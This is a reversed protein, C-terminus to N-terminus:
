LVNIGLAAMIGYERGQRLVRMLPSQEGLFSANAQDTVLLDSEDMLMLIETRDAEQDRAMRGILVQSLLVDIVVWQAPPALTTLDVVISTGKSFFQELDIGRFTRAFPGLAHAVGDLVQISSREYDEKAAFLAPPAAVAVDCLLQLDPWLRDGSSGRNLHEVLWTLMRAISTTAHKLGCRAALIVAIVMAWDRDSVGAPAQLGFWTGNEVSVRVCPVGLRTVFDAYDRKLEFILLVVRLLAAVALALRRLTVTKGSGTCGAVAWHEVRDSLRAGFEAGDVETLVGAPAEVKVAARWEQLTPPHALSGTCRPPSLLLHRVHFQCMAESLRGQTALAHLALLPKDRPGPHYADILAILHDRWAHPM